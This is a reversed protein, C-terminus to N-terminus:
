EGGCGAPLKRKGNDAYYPTPGGEELSLGGSPHAKKRLFRNGGSKKKRQAKTSEVEDQMSKRDLNPSFQRKKIEIIDKRKEGEGVFTGSSKKIVGYL